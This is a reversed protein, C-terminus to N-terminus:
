RFWHTYGVAKGEIRVDELVSGTYVLPMYSSNAPILQLTQTNANWYVRKLTAEGGICVAAIDGNEVQSQAHIYVIDGDQIGAEVMSDGRCRLCFDCRINSPVDVYDEINQEATIPEGCAISGILPKKMTDPLAEFGIPIASRKENRVPSVDYGMLWAESVNLALGLITLKDQKPIVKGSVYQSLDSKTLKVGYKNCYPLAKELVDVQKLNRATLLEKLRSATTPKM